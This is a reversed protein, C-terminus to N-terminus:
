KLKDLNAQKFFHISCVPQYKEEGGIVITNKDEILRKTYSAEKKCIYCQAKLKIVEDAIACIGPTAGFPLGEFTMDVAAIIVKKRKNVLDLLLECIAETDYFQGEDFLLYDKDTSLGKFEKSDISIAVYTKNDHTKIQNKEGCRQIDFTHNFISANNGLFKLIEILKSTKGAFMPGVIALVGGDEKELFNKIILNKPDEQMSYILPSTIACLISLTIRKIYVGM